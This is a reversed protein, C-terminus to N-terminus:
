SLTHVGGGSEMSLTYAMESPSLSGLPHPHWNEYPHTREYALSYSYELQQPFPCPSELFQAVAWKEVKVRRRPLPTGM